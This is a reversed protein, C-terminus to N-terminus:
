DTDTITQNNCAIVAMTFSTKCYTISKKFISIHSEIPVLIATLLGHAETFAWANSSIGWNYLKNPTIIAHVSKNFAGIRSAKIAPIKYPIDNQRVNTAGNGKQGQDNRGITYVDGNTALVITFDDNLSYRDMKVKAVVPTGGAWLPETLVNKDVMTNDGLSGSFNRGWVYLVGAITIYACSSNGACVYRGNNAVLQLTRYDAAGGGPFCQGYLNSGVVYVAGNACLLITWDSGGQVSVVNEALAATFCEVWIDSDVVANNARLCSSANEGAGFIKNDSARKYWFRDSVAGHGSFIDSAIDATLLLPATIALAHGQGLCGLSNKGWGYVHGLNTLVMATDMGCVAKVIHEGVPINLIERPINAQMTGTLEPRGLASNGNQSGMVFVRSDNDPSIDNPPTGFNLNLKNLFQQFYYNGLAGFYIQFSNYVLTLSYNFHDALDDIFTLSLYYRDMWRKMENRGNILWILVSMGVFRPLNM